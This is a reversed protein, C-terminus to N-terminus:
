GVVGALRMPRDRLDAILKEGEPIFQQKSERGIPMEGKDACLETPPANRQLAIDRDGVLGLGDGSLKAIAPGRRIHDDRRASQSRGAVITRALGHRRHEPLLQHEVGHDFFRNRLTKRMVAALHRRIIQLLGIFEFSSFDQGVRIAGRRAQPDLLVALNSHM